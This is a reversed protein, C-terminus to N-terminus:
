EDENDEKKPTEPVSQNTINEAEKRWLENFKNFEKSFILAIGNVILQGDIVNEYQNRRFGRLRFKGDDTLLYEVSVNGIVPSSEGEPNSGEIDVESGVSLILRDDFLKKQATIDLQTRDQATTGQYDTYSDLNLDLEIGSNGLLKGSLANLQDSLAQNLNDRAISATGGGSGDSGSEPFFRNLVLLSFVQRNREEEQQNVQQVMSYVQGGIAGREDEPMDITFSLEPSMLEGDVNLYVLFPLRQRFRQVQTADAGSTQSVMLPSASTEVRYIASIDLNADMPNGAWVVRSGEAIEFRRKVLNYLNMEFHGKKIEYPGTLTMRGNPYMNFKLEGEGSIMLNDGTQKDIIVNFTADEKISLLAAVTYGSLNITEQKSQTLIDDPNQRNVFLVVGDRKEMTVDSEALIYTFNTEPLLNLQLNIDPNLLTGKITADIDFSVNGYFMDNDEENSDLVNFNNAKMQLDFRPNDLDEAYINGNTVFTNNNQDKISFKNLKVGTNDVEISEKDIQFLANLMKINFAVGTFDLNGQYKPNTTTGRVKVNGSLFGEANSINEQSLKEIAEMKLTHLDLDLNLEAGSKKALYDGTFDLDIDGDKLSLNFDYRENDLASANLALNGLPVDLVYLNEIQLGAVLGLNGFPEEVVFDGNLRGSALNKEPNLYNVFDSLRFNEFHISLHEKEISPNKNTIELFHDERRLVFDTVDLHNETYVFSNSPPVDWPLSNLILEKPNVHFLTSDKRFELEAHLQVNKQEEYLSSFDFLIKNAQLTSNLKTEKIAIPGSNLEQFGFDMNLDDHNSFMDLFLETIQHGDYDIFPLRITSTLHQFKEQFDIAITITDMKELGSLFVDNLIPADTIKIDVFLEVPIKVSDLTKYATDALYYKFHNQIAEASVDPAANSRLEATLMKNTIDVETVNDDIAARIDFDGLLYNQGEYVALGDKINSTVSFSKANGEFEALLHFAARIDAETFGMAQLNIGKLKFDLGIKSRISDLAVAANLEFDINDDTYGSHINGNGDSLKGKIEFNEIPYDNISFREIQALMEADLAYLDEGSGSVEVSFDLDGFQEDDLLKGLKLDDVSVLTEFALEEENKYRVDAEIKGEPIQLTVATVLNSPTGKATANLHVTEPIVIGLEAEDVFDQIDNRQTKLNFNKVEFGLEEFETVNNIEGAFHLASKNWDINVSHLRLQDLTGNVHLNAKILHQSLAVIEHTKKLEPAFRFIEKVNLQIEPFNLTIKVTEPKEFLEHLSNYNLVAIGQLLNQYSRLNVESLRLEKENLLLNLQSQQVALGSAEDFQLTNLHFGASKNKLFVDNIQIDIASFAMAHSNFLGPSVQANDKSFRFSNNLFDINEVVVQWDPFQFSNKESQPEVASETADLTTTQLAIVSHHLQLTKIAIDKQTLDIKPAEVVFNEIFVETAMGSPNSDYELLINNMALKDVILFPLMPAAEEEEIAVENITELLEKFAIDTDDLQLLAIHFYMKDMDMEEIQLHLKGLKLKTDIGSLEDQYTIEFDAFQLDELRIPMASETESDETTESAFADILFQYNFGKLSDKRHINAQLGEWYIHNVGIEKGRIIP